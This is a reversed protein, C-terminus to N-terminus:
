QKEAFNAKQNLAGLSSRINLNKTKYKRPTLLQESSHNSASSSRCSKMRQSLTSLPKIKKASKSLLM